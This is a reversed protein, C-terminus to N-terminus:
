VQILWIVARGMMASMLAAVIIRDRASKWKVIANKKRVDGLVTESWVRTNTIPSAIRRTHVEGKMGEDLGM